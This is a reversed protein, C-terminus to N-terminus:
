GGFKGDRAPNETSFDLTSSYMRRPPYGPHPSHLDGPLQPKVGPHGGRLPCLARDLTVSVQSAAPPEYGSAAPAQTSSGPTRPFESLM